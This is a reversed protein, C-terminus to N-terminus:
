VLFAFIKLSKKKKKKDVLNFMNQTKEIHHNRGTIVVHINVRQMSSLKEHKKTMQQNKEFDGNEFFEKLLVM